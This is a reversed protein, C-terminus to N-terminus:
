SAEKIIAALETERGHWPSDYRIEIGQNRLFAYAAVQQQHEAWQARTYFRSRHGYNSGDTQDDRRFRRERFGKGVTIWVRGIKTIVAESETQGPAHIIVTEGVRLLDPTNM